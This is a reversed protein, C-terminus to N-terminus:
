SYHSLVWAKGRFAISHPIFQQEAVMPSVERADEEDDGLSGAELHDGEMPFLFDLDELAGHVDALANALPTDLRALTHVHRQLQACNQRLVEEGEEGDGFMAVFDTLATQVGTLAACMVDTILTQEYIDVM